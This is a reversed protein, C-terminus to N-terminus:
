ASNYLVNYGKNWSNNDYKDYSYKTDLEKDTNKFINKVRKVSYQINSGYPTFKHIYFLVFSALLTIIIPILITVVINQREFYSLMDPISIHYKNIINHDHLEKRINKLEDCLDLKYKNTCINHLRKYREECEKASEEKNSNYNTSDSIINDILTKIIYLDNIIELDVMNYELYNSLPPSNFINEKAKSILEEYFENIRTNHEGNTQKKQNIWYYLYQVAVNKLSSNEELIFISFLFEISEYCINSDNSDIIDSYLEKIPDCYENWKNRVSSNEQQMVKECQPFLSYASEYRSKYM